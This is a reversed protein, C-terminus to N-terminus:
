TIAMELKLNRIMFGFHIKVLDIGSLNNKILLLREQLSKTLCSLGRAPFRLLCVAVTYGTWTHGTRPPVRDQGLQPTGWETRALSYEM